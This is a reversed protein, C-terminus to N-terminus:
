ITAERGTTDILRPRRARPPWAVILCRVMPPCTLPAFARRAAPFTGGRASRGGKVQCLLLESANMALLDSGFQDRKIPIRGKSTFVWHVVELDAVQYGLAILWKKTRAKARAGRWVNSAMLQSREVLM